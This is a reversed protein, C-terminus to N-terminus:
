KLSILFKSQIDGCAISEVEAIELRKTDVKFVTSFLASIYGSTIFNIPNSAKGKKKLWGQDIYSTELIIEGYKKGAKLIKMKGLGMYSYYNEAIKLKEKLSPSKKNKFLAKFEYSFTSEASSKLLETTNWFEDSDIAIQTFLTTFNDCTLTYNENSIYHGYKNFNLKGNLDLKTNTYIPM